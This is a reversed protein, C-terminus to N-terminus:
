FKFVQDKTFGMDKLAGTLEGQDTPSVKNGSLMNYFPPPGCVFVKVNDAGAKFMNKELYDKTVFGTQGSWSKSPNEVFYHVKFQDPKQKVIDDIEKKLLIDDETTNGYFLHVKTNDKPDKNIEHILQYLPTIGTGAGLLAIEKHRNADWKYKVIPGKFSLSDSPKLSHIHKSMLGQDYVKVVLQFTGQEKTDSTPTYPRIVNKGNDSRTFKTLVCSATELGLVQDKQPLEFTFRKTNPSLAEVKSLKFDVWAEPDNLAKKSEAQAQTTSYYAVGAATSVGAALPLWTKSFPSATTASARNSASSFGRTFASRGAQLQRSLATRVQNM